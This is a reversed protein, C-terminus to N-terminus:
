NRVSPFGATYALNIYDLYHTQLSPWFQRYFEIPIGDTGPTKELPLQHVAKTLEALTIPSDLAQQQPTTLRTTLQSLLTAQLPLNVPSPTYLTTYYGQAITLLDPTATFQVGHDDRLASILNKTVHGKELAAYYQINPERVEFRPM